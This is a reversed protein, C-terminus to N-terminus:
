DVSYIMNANDQRNNYLFPMHSLEKKWKSRIYLKRDSIFMELSPETRAYVKKEREISIVATHM